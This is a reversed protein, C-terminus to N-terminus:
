WTCYSRQCLRRNTVSILVCLFVASHLFALCISLYNKCIWYLLNFYILVSGSNQRFLFRFKLLLILLATSKQVNAGKPIKLNGSGKGVHSILM